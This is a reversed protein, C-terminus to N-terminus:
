RGRAPLFLRFLEARSHVNMKNYIERVYDNLTHISLDMKDAVMKRSTGHLLYKLTERLRPALTMVMERRSDDFYIEPAAVGYKLVNRYASVLHPRIVEVMQRQADRIPRDCNVAMGCRLDESFSLETYVQYRVYVQSYAEQYIAKQRFERDSAFDSIAHVKELPKHISLLGLSSVIPHTHMTQELLPIVEHFEQHYAPSLKCRLFNFQADFEDWGLFAVELIRPLGELCCRFFHEESYDSHLELSFENLQMWQTQTLSAM